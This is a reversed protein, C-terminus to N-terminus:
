KWAPGVFSKSTGPYVIFPVEIGDIEVIQTNYSANNGEINIQGNSCCQTNIFGKEEDKLLAAQGKYYLCEELYRQNMSEPLNVWEFMSLAIKKFRELYDIYTQNNVLLSDLFELNNMKNKKM